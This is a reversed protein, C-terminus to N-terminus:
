RPIEERIEFSAGSAYAGSGASRSLNDVFYAGAPVHRGQDDTQDWDTTLALVEGPLVTESERDSVFESEWSYHGDSSYVRFPSPSQIEVPLISVNEVRLSIQVTEGPSYTSEGSALTWKLPYESPFGANSSTRFPAYWTLQSHSMLSQLEELSDAEFAHTIRDPDPGALILGPKGAGRGWWMMLYLASGLPTRNSAELPQSALYKLELHVGRYPEDMNWFIDGLSGGLGKVKTLRDLANLYAAVKEGIVIPDGDWSTWGSAPGGFHVKVPTDLLREDPGGQALQILTSAGVVLHTGSLDQYGQPKPPGGAYSVSLAGRWLSSPVVIGVLADNTDFVPDGISPDIGKAVIWLTESGATTAVADIGSSSGSGTADYIRVATESHIVSQSTPVGQRIGTRVVELLAAGSPRHLAIVSAPLVKGNQLVVELCGLPQSFDLATAVYGTENLVVGNSIHTKEGGEDPRYQNVTIIADHPESKGSGGLGFQGGSGSTTASHQSTRSSSAAGIQPCDKDPNFPRVVDKAMVTPQATEVPPVQSTAAPQATQTFLARATTPPSDTEGVYGCGYTGFAAVTLLTVLALLPFQRM